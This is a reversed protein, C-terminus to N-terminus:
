MNNLLNVAYDIKVSTGLGGVPSLAVVPALLLVNVNSHVAGSLMFSQSCSSILWVSHVSFMYMTVQQGVRFMGAVASFFSVKSTYPLEVAVVIM